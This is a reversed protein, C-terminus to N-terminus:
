HKRNRFEIGLGMLLFMMPIVWKMVSAIKELHFLVNSKWEFLALRPYSVFSNDERSAIINVISEIYERSGRGAYFERILEPSKSLEDLSLIQQNAM